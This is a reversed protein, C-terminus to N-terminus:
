HSPSERHGSITTGKHSEPEKLPLEAWVTKGVVRETVGWTRSLLTVLLLGRGGEADPDTVYRLPRDARPDSVEIRLTPESEPHLLGLRLEFDRGPLRAHTVANAALEAVVQQATANVDSDYPHGWADLQQATLRRALRAGRPTASLRTSIEANM